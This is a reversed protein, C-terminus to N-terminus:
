YQIKILKISSFPFNTSTVAFLQDEFLLLSNWNSCFGNPTQFPIFTENYKKPETKDSLIVKMKSFSDGTSTDDEDTQLSVALRGDPLTIIYPAGAKKGNRSPIYIDTPTDEFTFGDNSHLVQIIFPYKEKQTTAEIVLFYGKDPHKTVVPMGDRSNTVTGNRIITKESWTDNELIRYEINQQEVTYVANLSDNAYYVVVNDDILMFFPEYVGGIGFEETVISHNSWTFGNDHSITVRLSSYYGDEMQKNARYALLISGDELQLFSANACDFEPDLSGTIARKSWTMGGDTSRVIKIVSNGGDENTDFGCLIDNNDLTYLRPYWVGGSSPTYITQENNVIVIEEEKKIENSCANLLCVTLFLLLSIKIKTVM